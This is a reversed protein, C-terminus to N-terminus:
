LNRDLFKTILSQSIESRPLGLADVRDWRLQYKKTLAKKYDHKVSNWKEETLPPLLNIRSVWEHTLMFTFRDHTPDIKFDIVPCGVYVSEEVSASSFQIVIDACRLLEFTTPPIWDYDRTILYDGFYDDSLHNRLSTSNKFQFGYQHPQYSPNTSAQQLSPDFSDQIRTKVVVYYGKLSAIRILKHLYEPPPPQTWQRNKPYLFLAIKTNNSNSDSNSNNGNSNQLPFGYKNFLQERSWEDFPYDFKPNGYPIIGTKSELEYYDRYYEPIAIYNVHKNYRPYNKFFDWCNILSVTLYKNYPHLIQSWYKASSQKWDKWGVMDGEVVFTLGRYKTLFNSHYIQVGLPLLHKQLYTIHHHQYPDFEIKPNPHLFLRIIAQSSSRPSQSIQQILPYFSSIASMRSMVFNVSGHFIKHLRPDLTINSHNILLKRMYFIEREIDHIPTKVTRNWSEHAEANSKYSQHYMDPVFQSVANERFTFGTLHLREPQYSLLHMIALMGTTPRAKVKQYEIQHYEQSSFCHTFSLKKSPLNTSPPLPQTELLNYNNYYNEDLKLSRLIKPRDSPYPYCFHVNNKIAHLLHHPRVWNQSDRLNTYLLDTRTGVDKELQKPIPFGRKIRVVVDFSDIFKEQNELPLPGVLVVKKDKIMETLSQPTKFELLSNKVTLNSPQQPPSPLSSPLSTSSYNHPYFM